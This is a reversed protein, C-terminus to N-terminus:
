QERNQNIIFRLMKIVLVCGTFYIVLKVEVFTAVLAPKETTAFASLIVSIIVKLTIAGIWVLVIAENRFNAIFRAILKKKSKSHILALSFVGFLWVSVERMEHLLSLIHEADKIWNQYLSHFQASTAAVRYCAFLILESSLLVLLVWLSLVMGRYILSRKCDM